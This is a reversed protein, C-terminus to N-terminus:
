PWVLPGDDHPRPGLDGNREFEGGYHRAGQWASVMASGHPLRGSRRAPIGFTNAEISARDSGSTKPTPRKTQEEHFCGISPKPFYYRADMLPVETRFSSSSDSFTEPAQRSDEGPLRATIFCSSRVGLGFVTRELSPVIRRRLEEPLPQQLTGLPELVETRMYDEFRRGTVDEILAGLVGHGFIRVSTSRAPNMFLGHYRM